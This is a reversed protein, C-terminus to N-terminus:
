RTSKLIFEIIQNVDNPHFWTTDQDHQFWTMQKKAYVRTNKKIREVATKIDWEGDFYKFLEKFGVTNLSNNERLPYMRRAEQLLGNEIMTDVRRNIRDFLEARERKLGIKLIDFPREKKKEKRFSSYTTGTTYCIELAHIIRKPNKLDVIHYYEPDLLKLEEALREIGESIYRNKLVDRVEDTVTPIDDIGKCVADLYMMSGGSLLIHTYTSSLKELLNVAEQEYRAASYYDGINLFGVFYHKVRKLEEETPAATGIPIDKYIQRSDCNLIPCRLAEAVQLAVETKGVATPGFLTILKM